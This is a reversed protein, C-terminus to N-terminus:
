SECLNFYIMNKLCNPLIIVQELPTTEQLDLIPPKLPVQALAGTWSMKLERSGFVCDMKLRVAM